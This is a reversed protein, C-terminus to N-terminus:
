CLSSLSPACGRPDHPGDPPMHRAEPVPDLLGWVHDRILLSEPGLSIQCHRRSVAPDALV